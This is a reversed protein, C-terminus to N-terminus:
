HEFPSLGYAHFGQRWGRSGIDLRYLRNEIYLDELGIVSLIM